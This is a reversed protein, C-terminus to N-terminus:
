ASFRTWALDVAGIEIVGDQPPVLDAALPRGDVTVGAVSEVLDSAMAGALAAAPLTRGIRRRAAGLAVVAATRDAQVRSGDPGPRLFLTGAVRVTRRAAPRVIVTDSEVKIPRTRIAEAIGACLAAEDAGPKGLVVVLTEGRRVLGSAWNFVAADAVDTSYALATHLYAGPTLPARVESALALRRKYAEDTEGPLRDLVQDPYLTLSLHDLKAGFSTALYQGRVADNIDATALARRYAFAEALITVSDTELSQVDYPIGAANLRVAIDARLAKAEAEQDVSVFTVEPLRSLDLQEATFLSV